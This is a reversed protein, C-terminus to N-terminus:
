ASDDSEDKISKWKMGQIDEFYWELGDSATFHYSLSGNDFHFEEYLHQVHAPHGYWDTATQNNGFEKCHIEIEYRGGVDLDFTIIPHPGDALVTFEADHLCPVEEYFDKVLKPATKLWENYEECKQDWIDFGDNELTLSDAFAWFEPDDARAEAETWVTGDEKVARFDEDEACVMHVNFASCLLPSFYRMKTPQRKM